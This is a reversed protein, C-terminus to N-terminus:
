HDLESPDQGCEKRIKMKSGTPAKLEDSLAQPSGVGQWESSLIRWQIDQM